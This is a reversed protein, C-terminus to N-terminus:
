PEDVRIYRENSDLHYVPTYFKEPGAHVKLYAKLKPREPEAAVSAALVPAAMGAAAIPLFRTLFGRRTTM